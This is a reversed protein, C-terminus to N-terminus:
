PKPTEGPTTTPAAKAADEADVKQIAKVLDSKLRALEEPTPDPPTRTPPAETDDDNAADDIQGLTAEECFAKRAQVSLNPDEFGPACRRYMVVNRCIRHWDQQDTEDLFVPRNNLCAHCFKGPTRRCEALQAHLDNAQATPIEELRQQETKEPAAGRTACNCSLALAVFPLHRWLRLLTMKM